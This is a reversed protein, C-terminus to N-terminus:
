KYDRKRFSWRSERRPCNLKRKGSNEGLVFVWRGFCLEGFQGIGNIRRSPRHSARTEKAFCCGQSCQDIYYRFFYLFFFFFLLYLAIFKRQSRDLNVPILFSRRFECTRHIKLSGDKFKEEGYTSYEWNWRFPIIFLNRQQCANRRSERM